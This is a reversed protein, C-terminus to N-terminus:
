QEIFCHLLPLLPFLTLTLSTSNPLFDQVTWSPRATRWWYFWAAVPWPDSCHGSSSATALITHMHAYTCYGKPPSTAPARPNDAKYVAVGGYKNIPVRRAVCGHVYFKNIRSYLSLQEMSLHQLHQSLLLVTKPQKGSPLYFDVQCAHGTLTLPTSKVCPLLLLRWPVTTNRIPGM